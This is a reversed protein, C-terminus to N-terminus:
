CNDEHHVAIVCGQDASQYIAREIELNKLYDRGTNAFAKGALWSDVVHRQLLYVCDGGFNINQWPYDIAQTCNDGNQRFAIDGDGSLSLVGRAGEITMEGMTLRRNDAKHDALRNGDFVAQVGSTFNFIVLGSDEGAIVPNLRRLQAFVSAVEGFLYRFTDIWHVGTEHILFRDMQQFYPQRNLYAENGQGDGPRLRFSGQYVEGLRGDDTQRRM